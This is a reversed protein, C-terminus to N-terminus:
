QSVTPPCGKAVEVFLADLHSVEASRNPDGAAVLREAELQRRHGPDCLAPADYMGSITAGTVIVKIGNIEVTAGQNSQPFCPIAAISAQRAALRLRSVDDPSSGTRERADAVVDLERGCTNTLRLLAMNGLMTQQVAGEEKATSSLPEKAALAEGFLWGTGSLGVVLCAIVPSARRWNFRPSARLVPANDQRFGPDLAHNYVTNEDGRVGSVGLPNMMELVAQVDVDPVSPNTKMEDPPPALGTEGPRLGAGQRTVLADFELSIADRSLGAARNIREGM